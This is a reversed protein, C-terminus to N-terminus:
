VVWVATGEAMAVVRDTVGTYNEKTFMGKSRGMVITGFNDMLAQRVIQRSPYLGTGTQRTHIREQPFGADLLMQRPAAFLSDPQHFHDDCWEKGWYDYCDQPDVEINKTFFAQSNFLTIEARPHGSLIFALHDLAKLAHPTGDVPVFFTQSTIDGDIIWVPVDTCKELIRRSVSGLILEQILSLGRRGIVLADYLGQRAHHIIEDAVATTTARVQWTLRNDTVGKQRFFDAFKRAVAECQRYKQRSEPRLVNLLEDQELWEKGATMGSCHALSLIHFTVEEVDAFLRSLYHVANHSYISEDIAVLIKKEM